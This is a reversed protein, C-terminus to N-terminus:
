LVPLIAQVLSRLKAALEQLSGVNVAVPSDDPEFSALLEQYAVIRQELEIYNPNRAIEALLACTGALQAVVFGLDPTAAADSM